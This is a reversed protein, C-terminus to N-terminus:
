IRGSDLRTVVANIKWGAEEWVMEYLAQVVVGDAGRITLYVHLKGDLVHKVETVWADASRAIQPYGTKVMREFALLDFLAKIELSAFSYATRYDGAKFAALQQMIVKPAELEVGGLAVGALWIAGALLLSLRSNVREAEDGDGQGPEVDGPERPGSGG